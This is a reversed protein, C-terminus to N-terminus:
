IQIKKRYYVFLGVYSMYLTNVLIYPVISGGNWEPNFLYLNFFLNGSFHWLSAPVVNGRSLRTILFYGYSETVCGYLFAITLPASALIDMTGSLFFHYHWIFWILGVLFPTVNCGWKRELESQLFGRWGLEEAVLAWLLIIIKKSSPITIFANHCPTLLTICKAITLLVAPALFGIFCFRICFGRRYKQYLFARVGSRGSRVLIVILAALSPSAAEAGYLIFQLSGQSCVPVYRMLAICLLPIVFALLLFFPLFYNSIKRKLDPEDQSHYRIKM